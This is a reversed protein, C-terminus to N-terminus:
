HRRELHFNLENNVVFIRAVKAAEGVCRTRISIYMYTAREPHIAIYRELM